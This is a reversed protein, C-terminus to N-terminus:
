RGCNPYGPLTEPWLAEQSLSQSGTGFKIVSGPLRNHRRGRSLQVKTRDTILILQVVKV